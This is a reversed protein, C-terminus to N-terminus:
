REYPKRSAGTPYGLGYGPVGRAEPHGRGAGAANQGSGRQLARIMELMVDHKQASAILAQRDQAMELFLNELREIRDRDQENDNAM